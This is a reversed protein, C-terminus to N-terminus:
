PNLYFSFDPEKVKAPTIVEFEVMRVNNFAVGNKDIYSGISRVLREDHSIIPNTTRFGIFRSETFNAVTVSFLTRYVGNTPVNIELTETRCILPKPETHSVTLINSGGVQGITNISDPSSVISGIINNTSRSSYDISANRGQILPSNVANSVIPSFSVNSTLFQRNTLFASHLQASLNEVLRSKWKLEDKYTGGVVEATQRAQHEDEWALFLALFLCLAAVIWFFAKPIQRRFREVMGILVSILGSMLVGWHHIVCLLFKGIDGM